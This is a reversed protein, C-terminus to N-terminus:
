KAAAKLRMVTQYVTEVDNIDEFMPPLPPDYRGRLRKIVGGFGISGIGGRRERRDIIPLTGYYASIAKRRGRGLDIIILARTNTLAYYTRLKRRYAVIFRGWLFFQGAILFAACYIWVLVNPRGGTFKAGKLVGAAALTWLITFAVLVLSFPVFVWDEV